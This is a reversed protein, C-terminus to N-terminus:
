LPDAPFGREEPRSRDHGLAEAKPPEASSGMAVAPYEDEPSPLRVVVITREPKPVHFDLYDVVVAAEMFWQPAALKELARVICTPEKPVSARKLFTRADNATRLHSMCDQAQVCGAWLMWGAILTHMLSIRGVVM